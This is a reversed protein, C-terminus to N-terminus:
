REVTITVRRNMAKQEKTQELNMPKSEGSWTTYINKLGFKILSKRVADSRNQSLELNYEFSADKDTHGEIKIPSLINEPLQLFFIELKNMEEKSIKDSGKMFYVVHSRLVEKDNQPEREKHFSACGASVEFLDINDLYYYITWDIARRNMEKEKLFHKEYFNGITVYQEGGKAKFSGEVKIWRNVNDVV